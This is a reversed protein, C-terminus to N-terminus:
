KIIVIPQVYQKGGIEAKIYYTGAVFGSLDIKLENSKNLLGNIDQLKNGTIGYISITIDNNLLKQSNLVFKAEGSTPNPYVRFIDNNYNIEPVETTGSSGIMELVVNPNMTANSTINLQAKYNQTAIPKFNVLFNKYKGKSITLPMPNSNSIEFAYSDMGEITINSITVDEDGPNYLVVPLSRQTNTIVYEFDLIEQNIDLEPGTNDLWQMIKTILNQRINANVIVYPCLGMLVSRTNEHRVRVAFIADKGKIDSTDRTSGITQVKKGDNTFHLIPKVNEVDTIKMLNILYKILNGETKTGFDQTIPDGGVGSFWVRWPASGFGQTSFGAKEVGFLSLAGYNNLYSASLNGCIFLKKGANIDAVIADASAQTLAEESGTNWVIHTRNEFKERFTNFDSSPIQIYNQYGAATLQPLISYQAEGANVIEFKEIEKSFASVSGKGKFNDPNSRSSIEMEIDGAGLTAGPIIQLIIDADEGAPLTIELNKTQNGTITETQQNIIIAGQWDSATRSSKNVKIDYTKEESTINKLNYNRGFPVDKAIVDIKEGSSTLQLEPQGKVGMACNLIEKNSAEDTQVVGVFHLDKLKWNAPIDYVFDYSYVQGNVAPKPINGTGFAGGLFARVVKMHQYGVIKSPLKYYPNNEYGARNTLYNSQDWGTGVGSVSDELIYVNFKLTSNVTQLMTCYVTAMLQRTEENLAYSLQVECKPTAAMATQCVSIWNNRDQKIAGNFSRRDIAGAPFSSVGLASRITTEEPIAMSDGNHIKVGIVQDPYMKLLSDMIVTGDVCWGCWAGTFQELLVRKVQSNASTASFVLIILALFGLINKKM